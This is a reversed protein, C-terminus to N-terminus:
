ANHPFWITMDWGAIGYAHQWSGDWKMLGMDIKSGSRREIMSITYGAQGMDKTLFSFTRDTRTFLSLFKYGASLSLSPQHPLHSSFLLTLGLDLCGM